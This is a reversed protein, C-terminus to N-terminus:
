KEQEAQLAALQEKLRDYDALKAAREQRAAVFANFSAQMEAMQDPTLLDDGSVDEYNGQQFDLLDQLRQREAQLATLQAEAQNAVGVELQMLNEVQRRQDVEYALEKFLKENEARLAAIQQGAREVYENARKERDEAQCRREYHLAIQQADAARAREVDSALYILAPTTMQAAYMAQVDQWAASAQKTSDTTMSGKM